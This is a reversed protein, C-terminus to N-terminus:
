EIDPVAAPRLKECREKLRRRISGTKRGLILCHAPNDPLSDPRVELGLEDCVAKRLAVVGHGPRRELERDLNTLDARDVSLEDDDFAGSNPWGDEDALKPHIYRYFLDDPQFPSPEGASSPLTV